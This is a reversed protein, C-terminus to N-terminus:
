LRVWEVRQLWVFKGIFWFVSAMQVRKLCEWEANARRKSLGDSLISLVTVVDQVSFPNDHM